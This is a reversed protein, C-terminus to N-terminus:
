KKKPLKKSGKDLLFNVNAAVAKTTLTAGTCADIQVNKAENLTKGVWLKFFGKRELKKIYGLTEWHSLISVKQIMWDKDTIIMIPTLNNYGKVHKCFPFSSMAFGLLNNDKDVIRYWYENVKDVKVADPFTSVVVDKNSVEHFVPPTKDERKEQALIITSVILFIFLLKKKM